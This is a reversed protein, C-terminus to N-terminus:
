LVDEVDDPGGQVSAPEEWDDQLSGPEEETFHPGADDFDWDGQRERPSGLADACKRYISKCLPGLAYGLLFWAEADFVSEAGRAPKPGFHRRL